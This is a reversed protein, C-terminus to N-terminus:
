ERRYAATLGNVNLASLFSGMDGALQQRAVEVPLTTDITEAKLLIPIPRAASQSLITRADARSYVFGFHTGATSYEGCGAESCMTTAELYQTAGDNFLSANFNVEDSGAVGSAGATKFMEQGHWLPDEGRASHCVMTDHAGLVPSVGLAMHTGGGAPAYEAWHFLLTGSILDENWTRVLSYSGITQPFQGQTKEEAALESSVNPAKLGRAVGVLGFCVLVALAAARAYFNVPVTAAAAQVEPLVLISEEAKGGLRQIVAYLLYVALFFLGAGILYDANEARDQLSPFHIAVLYFLVLVCLRVFNFIYGLAIAGAVVATLAKWGFRYLYGAVLAIFGMTVAGRIGNCGPAIFMGFEPTFMLRLKDPSLPQGLGMAFARAVHASARQLPLDVYVNFVHPIPNVFLLLVLPFVAARLLRLGGFLLVLGCGFACVVLSLPPFYLTWQPALVLMMVAHDRLTVLVMTGLLVVLGWWTGDMEWGLSRWVRLLLLFSVFPVVMGISKLADTTWLVWLLVVSGWITSLGIVSLFSVVGAGGAPSLTAGSMLLRSQQLKSFDTPM